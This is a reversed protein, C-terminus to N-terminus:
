IVHLLAKDNEVDNPQRGPMEILRFQNGIQSRQCPPAHQSRQLGAKGRHGAGHLGRQQGALRRAHMADDAIAPEIAVRKLDLKPVLRRRENLCRPKPLPQGTAFRGHQKPLIRHVQIGINDHRRPRQMRLSAKYLPTVGLGRAIVLLEFRFDATKFQLVVPPRYGPQPRTPPNRLGRPQRPLTFARVQHPHIQGM